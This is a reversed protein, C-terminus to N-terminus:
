KQNDSRRRLNRMYSPFRSSKEWSDPIGDKGTLCLHLGDDNVNLLFSTRTAEDDTGLQLSEKNFRVIFEDLPENDRRKCM